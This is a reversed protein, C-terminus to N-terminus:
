LIGWKFTFGANFNNFVNEDTQIMEIPSTNRFGGNLGLWLNSGLNYQIEVMPEWVTFTTEDIKEETWTKEKRYEKDYIYNVVGNGLLLSVSIKIDDSIDFFKEVYFGAYGGNLHYTGDNVLKSLKKDYYLGSAGVGIAWNSKFTIAARVDVWGGADSNITSYKGNFGLYGGLETDGIKFLYNDKPQGIALGTIILVFIIFLKAKM